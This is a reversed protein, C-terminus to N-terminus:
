ESDAMIKGLSTQRQLPSQNNFPRSAIAQPQKMGGTGGTQYEKIYQKLLTKGEYSFISYKDNTLPNYIYNFSM